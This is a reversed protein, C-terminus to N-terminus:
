CTQKKFRQNQEYSLLQVYNMFYCEMYFYIFFDKNISNLTKSWTFFNVSMEYRVFSDCKSKSIVHTRKIVFIYNIFM